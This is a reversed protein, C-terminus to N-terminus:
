ELLIDALLPLCQDLVVDAEVHEAAPALEVGRHHALQIGRHLGGAAAPPHLEVDGEVVRSAALDDVGAAADDGVPGGALPRVDVLLRDSAVEVGGALCVGVQHDTGRALQPDGVEQEPLDGVGLDPHGVGEPGVEPAPVEILRDEVELAPLAAIAAHVLGLRRVDEGGAPELSSGGGADRGMFRTRVAAIPVGRMRAATNRSSLQHNKARMTRTMSPAAQSYTCIPREWAGWAGRRSRSRSTGATETPRLKARSSPAVPGSVRRRSRSPPKSSSVTPVPVMRRKLRVGSSSIGAATPM